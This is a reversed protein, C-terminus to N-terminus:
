KLGVEWLRNLPSSYSNILWEGKEDKALTDGDIVNLNVAYLTKRQYVPLEVALELVKKMANEYIAARQKRDDIRRADDILKSLETIIKNEQRSSDGLIERYGWALVSTATSNKHYVQYMDPDLSTGWAAAWVALSGTALKSLANPDPTIQVDWGCQNLLDMGHHMTNFCPHETLEAGAITFKISLSPDGKKVGAQEMYKKIAEIRMDDTWGLTSAYSLTPETQRKMHETPFNGDYEYGDERPYAWSVASMPWDINVASGSSYYTTASSTDMSVMIARRLNIDTVKGANIGIYGYGLQWASMYDYGKRRFAPDTVQSFNALTMQPSVFHATGETLATLANSSPVVHYELKETKVPFMFYPNAKYYVINNNLFQTARPMDSGNNDSAMYTGAGVPVSNKSDGNKNKGQITYMQFDFSAFEVGFQDNKIDIPYKDPDSYYHYPTISIGFNWIAKPDTGNVRIRLVDYEDANAPTGDANHEHAVKYEKGDVTVSTETGTHGLSVIGEIRPILPKGEVKSASLIIEKAKSVYENMANTGSAWFNMIQDFQTNIKDNYVYDIAAERTKITDVNYNLVIQKIQSRDEGVGEVQVYEPSAYGETFMFATVEDFGTAFDGKSTVLKASKYPEEQFAELANKYDSELEKRFLGKKEDDDKGNPDGAIHNYDAVIQARAASQDAAGTAELYGSSITPFLSSNANALESRMKDPTANYTGETEREGITRFADVLENRRQKARTMAGQTLSDEASNGDGSTKQQTRYDKLGLIDTSYLTGSGAYTPDLVTYLNFFVDNMTLPVGDSFKLGNKLVFYYDSYTQGEHKLEYAVAACAENDGVALEGNENTTFLAIQTQGAIEGDSASTSYFPSFLGDLQDTMLKLSNSTEGCGALGAFATLSMAAGMTVALAKTFKFRKM